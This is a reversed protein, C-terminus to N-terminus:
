GDGDEGMGTCRAGSLTAPNVRASKERDRRGLVKLPWGVAGKTEKRRRSGDRVEKRGEEELGLM